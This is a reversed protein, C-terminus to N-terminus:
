VFSFLSPAHYCVLMLASCLNMIAKKCGVEDGLLYDWVRLVDSFNELDQSFLVTIWRFAFYYPDIKQKKLHQAVTPDAEALNLM